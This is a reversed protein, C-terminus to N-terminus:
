RSNLRQSALHVPSGHFDGCSLIRGKTLTKCFCFIKRLRGLTFTPKKGVRRSPRVVYRRPFCLLPVDETQRQRIGLFGNTTPGDHRQKGGSVAAKRTANQSVGAGERVLNKQGAPPLSPLAVARHPLPPQNGFWQSSLKQSFIPAKAGTDRERVLPREKKWVAAM